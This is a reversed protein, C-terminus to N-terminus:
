TPRGSEGGLAAKHRGDWLVLALSSVARLERVAAVYFMILTGIQRVTFARPSM